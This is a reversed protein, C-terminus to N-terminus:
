YGSRLDVKSFVMAGGLEDLLEEILPIPYRDKVKLQNLTRYDICLRWTGDNKRILVVPSAYLSNNDLIVGFALMERVMKDIVDNQVGEYLYPKINISQFGEKLM